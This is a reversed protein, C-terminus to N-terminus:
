FKRPTAPRKTPGRSLSGYRYSGAETKCKAHLPRLRQPLACDTRKPPSSGLSYGRFYRFPGHLPHCPSHLPHDLHHHGVPGQNDHCTGVVGTVRQASQANSARRCATRRRSEGPWPARLPGSQSRYVRGGRCRENAVRSPQRPQRAGPGTDRGRRAGQALSARPEQWRAATGGSNLPSVPKRPRPSTTRAAGPVGRANQLPGPWGGFATRGLVEGRALTPGARIKRSRAFRADCDGSERCIRRNSSRCM